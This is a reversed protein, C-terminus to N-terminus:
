KNLKEEGTKEDIELCSYYLTEFKSIDIGKKAFLLLNEKVIDPFTNNEKKLAQYIPSLSYVDSKYRMKSLIELIFSRNDESDASVDVLPRINGYYGTNESLVKIFNYNEDIVTGDPEFCYESIVPFNTYFDDKKVKPNRLSLINNYTDEWKEKPFRNLSRIISLTDSYSNTEELVKATFKFKESDAVGKEDKIEEMLKPIDTVYDIKTPTNILKRFYFLNKEEFGGKKNKLSCLLAIITQIDARRRIKELNKNSNYFFLSAANYIQHRVPNNQMFVYDIFKKAVPSIEGTTEDISKVALAPIYVSNKGTKAKLYEEYQLVKGSTDNPIKKFSIEACYPKKTRCPFANVPFNNVSNIKGINM